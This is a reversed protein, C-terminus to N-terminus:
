THGEEAAVVIPATQRVSAGGHVNARSAKMSTEADYVLGCTLAFDPDLARLFVDAALRNLRTFAALTDDTTYAETREDFVDIDLLYGFTAIQSPDTFPGHRLVTRTGDANKLSLVQHAELLTAAFSEDLLPGLLANAIRGSWGAVSSVDPDPVRNVYRLGVRTRLGPKCINAAIPLAAKLIPELSMSWRDYKAAQVILANPQLSLQVGLAEDLLVWSRVAMGTVAQGGNADFSVTLEQQISPTMTSFEFGVDRLGARFALAHHEDLDPIDGQFRLEAVAIEITPRQLTFRRGEGATAATM